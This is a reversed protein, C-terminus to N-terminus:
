QSVPFDPLPMWHTTEWTFYGEGSAEIYHDERSLKEFEGPPYKRGKVFILVYIKGEDDKSPDFGLFPNGDKPPLKDKSDLNVLYVNM